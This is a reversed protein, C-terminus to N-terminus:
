EQTGAVLCVGAEASSEPKVDKIFGERVQKKRLGVKLGM